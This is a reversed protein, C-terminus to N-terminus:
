SKVLEEVLGVWAAALARRDYGGGGVAVLRGNCLRDALERVKSVMAIYGRLSYTLHTLPDSALGDAGAQLIILEPSAESAFAELEKAAQILEEDGAGPPLPHNLKTGLADGAGREHRFGTGPYIYRGDEHVDFIWVRPDEYFGYFVGDGHHADIDVYLVREVGHVEIAATIAIAVDNFVCFGSARDRRAHHLGGVPNFARAARGGMVAELATLTAGVVWLSAEYVGKFAPTDGYDLYGTGRKSARAVFEVYESDHFMEVEERSAMRPQCLVVKGSNLLDSRSNLLQLFHDYRDSRFPHGHPFSYFRLQDGLVM